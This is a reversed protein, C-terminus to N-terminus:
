TEDNENILKWKTDMIINENEIVIDPRLQFKPKNKHYEVLSYKKDQTKVTWEPRKEKIKKAVYNEFIKEMPFLLSFAVSKGAMSVISEERLFIRVWSLTSAYYSHLRSIHTSQEIDLEINSSKSIDNFVLLFEKIRKKNENNKSISSLKLLTSKILRNESIDETFDDYEVAFREKHLSNKRINEM